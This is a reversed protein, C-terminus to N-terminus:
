DNKVRNGTCRFGLRSLFEVTSKQAVRRASLHLECKANEVLLEERIEIVAEPFRSAAQHVGIKIEEMCRSYFTNIIQQKIDGNLAADISIGHSKYLKYLWDIPFKDNKKAKAITPQSLGLLKALDDQTKIKLLDRVHTWVTDFDPESSMFWQNPNNKM